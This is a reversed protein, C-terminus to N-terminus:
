AKATSARPGGIGAGFSQASTGTLAVVLEVSKGGTAAMDARKIIVPGTTDIVIRAKGEDLLGFRFASVLGRGKEGAGDPLRFAVDPLDIVVRYPNALTFIEARVGASLTLRFKTERKDGTVEARKAEVAPGKRHISTPDAAM